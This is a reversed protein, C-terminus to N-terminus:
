NWAETFKMFGLLKDRFHKIKSFYDNHQRDWWRHATTMKNWPERSSIRQNLFKHPHDSLKWSGSQAQSSDAWWSPLQSLPLLSCDSCILSSIPNRSTKSRGSPSYLPAVTSLFTRSCCWSKLSSDPTVGISTVTTFCWIAEYFNLTPGTWDLGFAM